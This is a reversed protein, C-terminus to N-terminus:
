HYLREVLAWKLSARIELQGWCRRMERKLRSQDMEMIGYFEEKLRM